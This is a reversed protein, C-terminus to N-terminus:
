KSTVEFDLTDGGTVNATLTTETNFKAPVINKMESNIGKGSSVMCNIKVKKQGPTVQMKYTGDKINGSSPMGRAADEDSAFSISGNAIPEGDLTVTGQVFDREPFDRAGPGCGVVGLLAVAVAIHFLRNWIM